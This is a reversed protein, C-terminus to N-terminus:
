SVRPWLKAFRQKIRKRRAIHGQEARQMTALVVSAAATTITDGRAELREIVRHQKKIREAEAAIDREAYHLAEILQARSNKAM